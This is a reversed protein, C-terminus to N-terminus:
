KRLQAVGKRAVGGFGQKAWVNSVKVLWQEELEHLHRERDRLRSVETELYRKEIATEVRVGLQHFFNWLTDRREAPLSLIRRLPEPTEAGVALIGLGHGHAMEASPYKVSIESWLRWVGFDRERVNTDHFLMVGRESMKPLWTEFDRKVADYTHFGDIHLLDISSDAFHNLAEDFTSQVLRSFGSYLPDHHMKLDTLVDDGYFGSQPDGQWTDVAYCRTGTQLEAVAQCFACYSIGAYSGLEVIVRPRLIDVLLMALPVHQAWASMALRAPFTLCIPHDLPNFTGSSKEGGDHPITTHQETM